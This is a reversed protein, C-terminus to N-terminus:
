SVRHLKATNLLGGTTRGSLFKGANISSSPENGSKSYGRV